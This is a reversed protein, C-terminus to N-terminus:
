LKSAFFIKFVQFFCKVFSFLHPISLFSRFLRLSRDYFVSCCSVFRFELLFRFLSVLRIPLTFRAFPLRAPSQPPFSGLHLSDLRFCFICLAMFEYFPCSGV